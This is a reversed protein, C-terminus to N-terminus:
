KESSVASLHKKVVRRGILAGIFSAVVIGGLLAIWGWSRLIESAANINDQRGDTVAHDEMTSAAIVYPFLTSGTGAFLQNIIYSVTLGGASGYGTRWLILEAIVGSLIFLIVYPLYGGLIARVVCYILIAGPKKVRAGIIFFVIGELLSFFIPMLMITVSTAYLLSSAFFLVVNIMALLVVTIIDKVKLKNNSKM